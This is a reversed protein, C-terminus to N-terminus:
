SARGLLATAVLLELAKDATPRPLELTAMGLAYARLMYVVFYSQVTM